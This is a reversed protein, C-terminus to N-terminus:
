WRSNLRLFDVGAAAWEPVHHGIDIYHPWQAQGDDVTNWGNTCCVSRQTFRYVVRVPSSSLFTQCPVAQICAGGGGWVYADVTGMIAEAGLAERTVPQASLHEGRSAKMM